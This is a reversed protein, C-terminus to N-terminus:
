LGYKNRYDLPSMKTHLKFYKSFYSTTSFNFIASIESIPSNTHILYNKITSLVLM